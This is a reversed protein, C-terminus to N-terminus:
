SDGQKISKSNSSMQSAPGTAIQIEAHVFLGIREHSEFHKMRGEHRIEGSYRFKSGFEFYQRLQAM